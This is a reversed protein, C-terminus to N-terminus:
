KENEEEKIEKRIKELELAAIEANNKQKKKKKNLELNFMFKFDPKKYKKLIEIVKQKGGDQFCKAIDDKIEVIYADIGYSTLEEYIRLMDKTADEDLCLIVKTNHKILKSILIPSLDKGLLPVCNPLPFMDFIGETLYVPLDFNINYENFIISLKEPADPKMYPRKSKPLFSRADYYNIEGKSNRSPCVIRFRRDGSETYGLEYKKIIDETIGRSKLYSMAKYYLNTKNTVSLLYQYEEPLKCTHEENTIEFIPKKYLVHNSKPFLLNVRNVDESTGYHAVLDHLVGHYGCKFCHFIIKPSNFNLNFKNKDNKCVNSPCNFEYQTQNPFDKKPNGFLRKLIGIAIDKSQDSM